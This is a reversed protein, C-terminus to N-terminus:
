ARATSVTRTRRAIADAFLHEVQSSYSKLSLSAPLTIGDGASRIARHLYVLEALESFGANAYADSVARENPDLLLQALDVDRQAFSLCIAHSLEALADPSTRHLMKTPSLLLMTKGPSVVPLMAWELRGRLTAIWTGNVDVNRHMAYSLFDLVQEDRALGGPGSLLLCLAQDIEQREVLRCERQAPPQQRDSSEDHRRLFNSLRAM